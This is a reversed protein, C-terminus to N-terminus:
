TIFLAPFLCPRADIALSRLELLFFMGGQVVSPFSHTEKLHM